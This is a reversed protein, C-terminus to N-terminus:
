SLLAAVALGLYTGLANGLAGVLIGPVVLDSRGLSRAVALASTSGGINAQSAVAALDPDLRLLRAAGFIVVGHILLLIAVFGFLLLGLVGSGRLAEVDCLAGIVALFLYVGYLGLTRAGALRSVAPVQALVLALTTLILIGPVPLGLGAELWSASRESAWVALAAAAILVGLDLPRVREHVEPEPPHLASAPPLRLERGRLLRPVVLTVVMWVTTMAADVANAGALLVGDTLQFHSAIAVFNASGGVYTGTFMGALMHRVGAFPEAEGVAWMGALAGTATGAAGILFLGIMRGGAGLIVRLRVQLLLWFLAMWAGEKFLVQYLPHGATGTPILGLNAVVAAIVIVLLATGLHRFGPRQELLEALVVCLSLVALIFLPSAVPRSSLVPAFWAFGSLIRERAGQSRPWVRFDGGRTM